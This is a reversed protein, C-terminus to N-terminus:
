RGLRRKVIGGLALLGSGLMAISAPEPVPKLIHGSSNTGQTTGGNSFLTDVSQATTVGIQATSPIAGNALWLDYLVGTASTPTFTGYFTVMNGATSSMSALNITGTVYDSGLNFTFNLTAGNMNVLYTSGFGPIVTQSGLTPSGGSFAMTYTGAQTGGNQLWANGSCCGTSFSFTMTAGGGAASFDVAINQGLTIQTTDASAAGALLVVALLLFLIRKYM